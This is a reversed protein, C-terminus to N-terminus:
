YQLFCIAHFIDHLNRHIDSDIHKPRIVLFLIFASFSFFIHRTHMHVLEPRMLKCVKIADTVIWFDCLTVMCHYFQLKIYLKWYHFWDSVFEVIKVIMFSSLFECVQCISGFPETCAKCIIWWVGNLWFTAACMPLRMICDKGLILVLFLFNLSVSPPCKNSKLFLIFSLSWSSFLWSVCSSSQFFLSLKYHISLTLM